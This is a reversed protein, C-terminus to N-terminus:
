DVDGAEGPIWAALLTVAVIAAMGSFLTLPNRSDWQAAPAFITSLVQRPNAGIAIRIGLEHTRSVLEKPDGATRAVLRVGGTYYRQSPAHIRPRPAEILSLARAQGLSRNLSRDAVKRLAAPKPTM